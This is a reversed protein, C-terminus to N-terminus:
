SKRHACVTHSVTVLHYRVSFKKVPGSERGQGFNIHCSHQRAIQKFIRYSSDCSVFWRMGIVHLRLACYQPVVAFVIIVLHCCTYRSALVAASRKILLSLICIYIRSDWQPRPNYELLQQECQSFFCTPSANHRRFIPLTFDIFCHCFTVTVNVEAISLEHACDNNASRVSRCCPRGVSASWATNWAM